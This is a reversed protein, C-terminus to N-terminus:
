ISNRAQGVFMGVLLVIKKPERLCVLAGEYRGFERQINSGVTPKFTLQTCAVAM